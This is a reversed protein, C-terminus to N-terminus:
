LTNEIIEEAVMVGNGNEDNYALGRVVVRVGARATAYFEVIARFKEEGYTEYAYNMVQGDEHTVEAVTTVITKTTDVVLMENGKRQIFGKPKHVLRVRYEAFTLDFVFM